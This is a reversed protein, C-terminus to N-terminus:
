DMEGQHRNRISRKGVSERNRVTRKKASVVRHARARHPEPPQEGDEDVVDERGRGERM